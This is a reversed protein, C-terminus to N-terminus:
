IELVTQCGTVKMLVMDFVAEKEKRKITQMKFMKKTILGREIKFEKTNVKLKYKQFNWHIREFVWKNIKLWENIRWRYICLIYIEKSKGANM